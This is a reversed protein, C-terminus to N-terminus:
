KWLRKRLRTKKRNRMKRFLIRNHIKKFKIKKPKVTQEQAFVQGCLLLVFTLAVFNGFIHKSMIKSTFTLNKPKPELIFCNKM